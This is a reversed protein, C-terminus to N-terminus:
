ALWRRSPSSPSPISTALHQNQSLEILPTRGLTPQPPSLHYVTQDLSRRRLFIRIKVETPVARLRRSLVPARGIGCRLGRLNIAAGALCRVPQLIPGPHLLLRTRSAPFRTCIIIFYALGYHRVVLGCSALVVCAGFSLIRLFLSNEVIKRMFRCFGSAGTQDHYSARFASCGEKSRAMTVLRAHGAEM